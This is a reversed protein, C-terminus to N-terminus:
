LSLKEEQGGDIKLVAAVSANGSPGNARRALQQLDIGDGHRQTLSLSQLNFTTAVTM